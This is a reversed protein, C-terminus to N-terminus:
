GGEGLSSFALPSFFLLKRRGGFFIGGKEAWRSGWGGVKSAKLTAPSPPLALPAWGSVLPRRVGRSFIPRVSSPADTERGGGGKPPRRESWLGGGGARRRKKTPLRMESPASMISRSPGKQM